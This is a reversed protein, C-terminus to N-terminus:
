TIIILIWKFVIILLKIYYYLISLKCSKIKAIIILIKM